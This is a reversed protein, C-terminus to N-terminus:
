AEDQGDGAVGLVGELREVSRELDIRVVALGEPVLAANQGLHLPVVRPRDGCPLLEDAPCRRSRVPLLRDGADALGLGSETAAPGAARAGMRPRARIASSGLRGRRSSGSAARAM